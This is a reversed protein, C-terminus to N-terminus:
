VNHLYDPLRRSSCQKVHYGSAVQPLHANSIYNTQIAKLVFCVLKKSKIHFFAFHKMILKQQM